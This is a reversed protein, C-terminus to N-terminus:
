LVQINGVGYISELYAKLADKMMGYGQTTFDAVTQYYTNICSKMRNNKDSCVVLKELMGTKANASFYWTLDYAIKGTTPLQDLHPMAYCVAGTSISDGNSLYTKANIQFTLWSQSFGITTLTVLAFLLFLKKM